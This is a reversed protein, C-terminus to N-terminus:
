KGNVNGGETINLSKIQRVKYNCYYGALFLMSAQFALLVYLIGVKWSAIKSAQDYMSRNAIDLALFFFRAINIFSLIFIYKIWKQDYKKLYEGVLFIALSYLINFLTYAGTTLDFRLENFAYSIYITNAILCLMALKYSLSNTQFRMKDIKIGLLKDYKDISDINKIALFTATLLLALTFISLVLISIYLASNIPKTTDVSGDNSTVISSITRVLTLVIILFITQLGASAILLYRGLKGNNKTINTALLPITLILMGLFSLPILWSHYNTSTAVATLTLHLSVLTSIIAVIIAAFMKHRIKLAKQYSTEDNLM